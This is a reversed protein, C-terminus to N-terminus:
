LDMEVQMEKVLRVKHALQLLSDELAAVQDVLCHHHHIVLVEEM